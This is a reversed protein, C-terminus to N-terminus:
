PVLPGHIEDLADTSVPMHRGASLGQLIAVVDTTNPPIQYVWSEPDELQARPIVGGVSLDNDQSAFGSRVIITSMEDMRYRAGSSRVVIDGTRSYFDSTAEIAVSDTAFEGRNTRITETDKDSIIAPRYIAARLGGRFTTGYCDPCRSDRSQGYADAIRDQNGRRGTSYCTPCRDVLGATFDSLHWFLLFLAYEGMKFIVENHSRVMEVHQHVQFPPLWFPSKVVEHPNVSGM